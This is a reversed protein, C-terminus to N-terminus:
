FGEHFLEEANSIDYVKGPNKIWTDVTEGRELAEIVDFAVPGFRPSCEVTALMEGDIIKQLADKEGACSTIIVDKGPVFGEGAVLLANIAGISSEDCHGYVADIQKGKAQIINEMAKQAEARNFNGTQSAIIHMNPFEDAAKQLGISRDRAVSSGPTGIIEVVNFDKGDFHEALLKGGLYGEWIFDATICTVYDEGPVGAADRDILIVPIGAKKASQLAPALGEFERPALLIYDPKQVILDEVDSVQKATSGEADTYVLKIGRAAAEDKISRTEEIRWPYNTEM